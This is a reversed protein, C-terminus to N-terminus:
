CVSREGACIVVMKERAGAPVESKEAEPEEVSRMWLVECGVKGSV